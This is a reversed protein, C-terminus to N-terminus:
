GCDWNYVVRSFDRKKLDDPHIFFNGVGIDGWLIDVEHDSDIQLLLEYQQIEEEYTRPDTQTFFPYGGICHAGSAFADSYPEVWEDYFDEGEFQDEYDYLNDVGLIKQGFQFDDISIYQEALAYEIRCQCDVPTYYDDNHAAIVESFDQTLQNPDEIIDEWYVVRFDEQNQRDDFDAGYLDDGGIFFQLIGKEPYNELKPMQAFNIQALLKLPTGESNTPYKENLPLYPMGGVRSEWLVYNDVPTLAMKVFPKKTAKIKDAFPKIVDPLSNFDVM